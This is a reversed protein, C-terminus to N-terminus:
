IPAAFDMDFVGVAADDFVLRRLHDRDIGAVIAPDNAPLRHDQDFKIELAIRHAAEAHGLRM